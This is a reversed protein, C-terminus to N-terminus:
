DVNAAQRARLQRQLRQRQLRRAREEIVKRLLESISQERNRRRAGHLHRAVWRSEMSTSAYWSGLDAGYRHTAKQKLQKEYAAQKVTDYKDTLEKVEQDFGHKVEAWVSAGPKAKQVGGRKLEQTVRALETNLASSTVLPLMGAKITPQIRVTQGSVDLEGYVKDGLYM